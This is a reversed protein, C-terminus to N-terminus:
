SSSVKSRIWKEASKLLLVYYYQICLKFQRSYMQPCNNQATFISANNKVNSSSNISNSHQITPQSKLAISVDAPTRLGVTTVNNFHAVAFRLWDGAM